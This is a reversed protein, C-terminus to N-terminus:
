QPVNNMREVEMQAGLKAFIDRAEQWKKVGAEQNGHGLEYRAWARLTRAREMEIEADEFCKVSNRFCTVADHLTKQHTEWDSFELSRNTKDSVVGLTRWAMGIAEPANDEEGFVLSQRASYFAEEYRGLGILAEAHSNFAQPMVWSGNIGARGIADELDRIAEEYRELAVLEWARNSLFVIEGDRNGTERCSKVAKDFRAFATDYDGRADALVGLNALIDTSLMRNGLDQFLKLAKGWYGEADNLRGSMYNLGGLLNFCRAIQATDDLDTFIALAQEALPLALKAEGLRYHAFSQDWLSVALESNDNVSRALAEARLANELSARNDGQYNLSFALGHLARSQEVPDGIQEAEALMATFIEIADPYRAQLNLVMGLRQYAELKLQNQEAGDHRKIFELAKQFFNIALDPAYTNQAQRGARTYWEAAKIWAGAREFHEAVRGAYENAREGGIGVLGEAAQFHYTPRFRLLVSEYTVDHLIQNKFIFEVSQRSDTERYQYVFEKARLLDLQQAIPASEESSPNEPNHMREVIDTWFVRGVVSAQQLTERAKPELIDLRAQLLGTLTAPVKLDSLRDLEVSWQGDGRVIVGGEILVRILEEVYFPSGEAKQVILNIIEEPIKPIKQLIEHILLRTDADSLPLLNISQARVQGAGWDPRQEFIMPRMLAVILLPLDSRVSMLYEFFDLSGSDAWHIDEFLIVIPQARAMDEIFEGAYHFALGRIQKADGLIGKIHPDASYDFGILHGIFPVYLEAKEANGAAHL